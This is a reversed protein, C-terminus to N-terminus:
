RNEIGTPVGTSATAQQLAVDAGISCNWTNGAFIVQSGGVWFPYKCATGTAPDDRAINQVFENGVSFTVEFCNNPSARCENHHFRNYNSTLNNEGNMYFCNGSNTCTNLAIVNKQCAICVWGASECGSSFFSGSPATCSRNDNSWSNGVFDSQEVAYNYSGWGSSNDLHNNILKLGNVHEAAVGAVGGAIDSDMVTTNSAHVLVGGGYSAGGCEPYLCLMTSADSAETGARILVNRILIRNGEAVIGFARGQTHIVASPEGFVGINDGSITFPRYVQGACLKVSTNVTDPMQDAPTCDLPVPPIAISLANLSLSDPLNIAVTSSAGLRQPTPSVPPVKTPRATPAATPVRTRTATPARRTPAKTPANTPTVGRAFVTPRLAEQTIRGAPVGGKAANPTPRPPFLSAGVFFVALGLDVIGFIIMAIVFFRRTNFRRQRSLGYTYGWTDRLYLDQVLWHSPTRERRFKM